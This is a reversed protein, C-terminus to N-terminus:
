LGSSDQAARELRRRRLRRAGMLALWWLAAAAVLWATVAPALAMVRAVTFTPVPAGPWGSPPLTYAPAHRYQVKTQEAASDGLDDAASITSVLFGDNGKVFLFADAFYTSTDSMRAGYYSDIGEVTISHQFTPDAMDAMQSQQLWQKAGKGGTFAVVIEVMVRVPSQQVWARGYGGVFGDKALTTITSQADIGGISAYKGADFPGELIGPTNNDLEVYGTHPPEALVRSLHPIPSPAAAAVMVPLMSAAAFAAVTVRVAPRLM